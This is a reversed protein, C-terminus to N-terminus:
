TMRVEWAERGIDYGQIRNTAPFMLGRIVTLSTVAWLWQWGGYM